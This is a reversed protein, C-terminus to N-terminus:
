YHAQFSIWNAQCCCFFFGFQDDNIQSYDISVLQYFMGCVEVSEDFGNPCDSVGNCKTELPFCYGTDNGCYAVVDNPQQCITALHKSDVDILEGDIEKHQQEGVYDRTLHDFKSSIQETLSYDAIINTDWDIEQVVNPNLRSINIYVTNNLWHESEM